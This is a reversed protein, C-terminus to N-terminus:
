SLWVCSHTLQVKLCNEYMKGVLTSSSYYREDVGTMSM